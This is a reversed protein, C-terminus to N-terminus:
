SRDSSSDSDVAATAGIKKMETKPVYDLIRKEWEGRNTELAEKNRNLAPLLICAAEYSPKMIFDIFGVQSQAINTTYRDMFMSVNFGRSREQDGQNFFEVFLLVTWRECIEFPKSSNSIDALHFLWECCLTKNDENTAVFSESLVQSKFRGLKNFHSAMDTALVANVMTKRVRKFQAHSLSKFIDCDREALIGFTSAIHHNELVSQDNYRLAIEDKTEVLYLNSFGPHDFDHCAGALTYAM